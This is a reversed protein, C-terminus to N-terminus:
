GDSFWFNFNLILYKIIIAYRASEQLMFYMLLCIVIPISTVIALLRWDNCWWAIWPLLCAAPLFCLTMCFNTIPARYKPAVNEM